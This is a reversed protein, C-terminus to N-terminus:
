IYSQSDQAMRYSYTRRSVNNSFTGPFYISLGKENYWLFLLHKATLFLAVRSEAQRDM